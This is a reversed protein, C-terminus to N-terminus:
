AEARSKNRPGRHKAAASVAVILGAVVFKLAIAFDGASVAGFRRGGDGCGRRCVRHPPAKKRLLPM